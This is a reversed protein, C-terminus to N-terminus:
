KRGPLWSPAVLGAALLVVGLGAIAVSMSVWQTAAAVVGFVALAVVESLLGVVSTVTARARGEIADQLRAGAVVEANFDIGYAVAIGLFGIWLLGAGVALAGAIFLLGAVFLAVGVLRAPASETRGALLSGALSGAVTVGVLLASTAPSAGGSVALLGFYEDFATVGYLLAGLLVGRRVRRVHMSEAIGTRLMAVYRKRVPRDAEVVGPPTTVGPPPTREDELADVETASIAVPARPLALATVTHVVGVGVSVWGVLGYGGWAFLPAAAVIAILVTSEQAARAWGMIRAYQATEGRAVLDDYILAEFTGSELAGAIGWVVFGVAFGAFSPAVMWITFGAAQLVASFVLLGRRSVTDAWAGSPVELLFATVSWLALLLSIQATGLGHDAFLVGYLAYIPLLDRSGKFVVARVGLGRVSGPARSVM